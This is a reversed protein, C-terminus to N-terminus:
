PLVVLHDLKHAKEGDHQSFSTQARYKCEGNVPLVGPLQATLFPQPIHLVQTGMLCNLPPDVPFANWIAWPLSGLPFKM